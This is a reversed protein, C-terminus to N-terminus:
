EGRGLDQNAPDKRQKDRSTTVKGKEQALEALNIKQIGNEVQENSEQTTVYQLAEEFRKEDKDSENGVLSKMADKLKKLLELVIFRNKGKTEEM